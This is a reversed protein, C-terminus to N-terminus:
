SADAEGKAAHDPAPTAALAAEALCKGCPDDHVEEQRWEGGEWHRTHMINRNIQELATRMEGARAEAQQRLTREAALDAVLKDIENLSAELGM